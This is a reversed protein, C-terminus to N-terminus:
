AVGRKRGARRVGKAALPPSARLRSRLARRIRPPVHSEREREEEEEEEEESSAGAEKEVPGM